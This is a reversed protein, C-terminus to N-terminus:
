FFFFIIQSLNCSILISTQYPTFVSSSSVRCLLARDRINCDEFSGTQLDCQSQSLVKDSVSNAINVGKCHLLSLSCLSPIDQFQRYQKDLCGSHEGFM